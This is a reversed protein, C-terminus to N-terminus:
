RYGVPTQLFSADSIASTLIVKLIIIIVTSIDNHVHSCPYERSLSTQSTLGELLRYVTLQTFTSHVIDLMAQCASSPEPWLLVISLCLAMLFNTHQFHSLLILDNQAHLVLIFFSIYFKKCHHLVLSLSMIHSESGVQVWFISKHNHDFYNYLCGMDLGLVYNANHM